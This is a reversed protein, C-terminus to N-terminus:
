KKDMVKKYILELKNCITKPNFLDYSKEYANKGIKEVIDYNNNLIDFYNIYEEVSNVIIGTENHEIYETHTNDSGNFNMTIVCKGVTMSESIVLGFTEPYCHTHIAPTNQLISPLYNWSVNEITIAKQPFKTLHPNVTNYVIEMLEVKDEICELIETFLPFEPKTTFAFIGRKHAMFKSPRINDDVCGYLVDFDEIKFKHQLQNQVKKLANYGLIIHHNILDGSWSRDIESMLNTEIIRKVGADVCATIHKHCVEQNYGEYRYIHIIDPNIKKITETALDLNNHFYHVPCRINNYLSNINNDSWVGISMEIENKNINNAIVYPVKAHFNYKISPIIVLVKIM